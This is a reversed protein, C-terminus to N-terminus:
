SPRTTPGTARTIRAAGPASTRGTASISAMEVELGTQLVQRMLGTLSGGQGTLAVGEEHARAVLLEAWEEMSEPQGVPVLEGRPAGAEGESRDQTM